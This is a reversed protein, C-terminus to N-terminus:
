PPGPLRDLSGGVIMLCLLYAMIQVSMDKYGAWQLSRTNSATLSVGLNTREICSVNRSIAQSSFLSTCCFPLRCRVGPVPTPTIQGSFKVDAHVDIGEPILRVAVDSGKRRRTRILTSTSYLVIREAPKSCDQVSLEVNKCESQDKSECQECRLFGFSEIIRKAVIVLCHNTNANCSRAGF